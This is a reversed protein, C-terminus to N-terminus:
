NLCVHAKVCAIFVKVAVNCQSQSVVSLTLQCTVLFVLPQVFVIRAPVDFTEAVESGQEGRCVSVGLNNPIHYVATVRCPSFAYWNKYVFNDFFVSEYLSRFCLVCRRYEKSKCKSLVRQM